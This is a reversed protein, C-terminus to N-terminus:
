NLKFTVGVTAYSIGWGLEAFLAVKPVFYWRAGALLSISPYVIGEHLRYANNPNPDNTEFNYTQIRLGVIAGAYVEAKESNLFDFHYAARAAIMFYKWSHEYYYASGYYYSDIYRSHASQYGAYAGVGLYGPGLKKHIAQEYSLSFSPSRRSTYGYGKGKYYSIGGFGIGVNIVRTNEDFCKTGSDNQLTSTEINNESFGLSYIFLSTFTLCLLKKKM